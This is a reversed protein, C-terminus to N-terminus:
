VRGLPHGFREQMVDEFPIGEAAFWSGPRATYLDHLQPAEPEVGSALQEAGEMVVRRFRVVAADTATLNERTRDAIYGQSQQIMADQEALGKVGTFTRHKQEERDIMFDNSRNKLPMYDTGLEAIIGFGNHLKAREAEDIVREPNWAYTFVWTAEDTVPVATFGFYTEGPMASPGTGHSPVMYQTMRWYKEGDAERMGGVVFGVEHEMISFDPMPDNRIWRLRREDAPADPNENSPVSPAPMHLFSFHSTDLDGEMIQAWNCELLQKTIYRNEPAVLGFELQPVEPLTGGPLRDAPPGMWAWVFGGFERTPYAKLKVTDHLSVGPRVNPLDVPNGDVDFKWGHYVCRLGCDENRGFFLNAGRHPCVSDVLGIRGKTDRFAVLAEGLVNVRVPPGDPEAVEKGLAVPQWFRRFYQGMPTEVGTRTLLDNQAATLM